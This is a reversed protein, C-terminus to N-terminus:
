VQRLLPLLLKRTFAAISQINSGVVINISLILPITMIITYAIIQKKEKRRLMLVIELLTLVLYILIVYLINM